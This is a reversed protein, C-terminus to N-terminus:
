GFSNEDLGNEDLGSVDFDDFVMKMWFPFVRFKEGEAGFGQVKFGLGQIKFGSGQFGFGSVSGWSRFGSVRFGKGQVRFMTVGLRKDVKLLRERPADGLGTSVRFAPM